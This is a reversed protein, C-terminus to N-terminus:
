EFELEDVDEKVEEKISEFQSIPRIKLFGQHEKGQDSTTTHHNKKKPGYKKNIKKKNAMERIKKKLNEKFRAKGTSVRDRYLSLFKKRKDKKELKKEKVKEIIKARKNKQWIIAAKIGQALSILLDLSMINCSLLLMLMSFFYSKNWFELSLMVGTLISFCTQIVIAKTNSFKSKYPRITILYLLLFIEILLGGVIQIFSNNQFIVITLSLGLDTGFHILDTFKAFANHKYEENLKKEWYLEVIKSKDKRLYVMIFFWCYFLLVVASIILSIYELSGKANLMLLNNVSAFVLPLQESILHNPLTYLFINRSLRILIEAPFYLHIVAPIVGILLMVVFLYLNIGEALFFLNSVGVKCFRESQKNCVNNSDIAAYEPAYLELIQQNIQGNFDIFISLYKHDINPETQANYYTYLLIKNFTQALYNFLTGGNVNAFFGGLLPLLTAVVGISQITSGIAAESTTTKSSISELGELGWGMVDIFSTSCVLLKGEQSVFTKKTDLRLRIVPDSELETSNIELTLRTMNTEQKEVLLTYKIEEHKGETHVLYVNDISNKAISSEGVGVEVTIKGVGRLVKKGELRATFQEFCNQMRPLNPNCIEVCLSGSRVMGQPCEDFCVRRLVSLAQGDRCFLACHGDSGLVEQAACEEVCHAASLLRGEALCESPSVCALGGPPSPLATPPYACSPLCRAGVTSSEGSLSSSYGWWRCSAEVSLSSVSSVYWQSASRSPPASPSDKLSLELRPALLLSPLPTSFTLLLTPPTLTFTPPWSSSSLTASSILSELVQLAATDPTELDIVIMASSDDDSRFSSIIRPTIRKYCYSTKTNSCETLCYKGTSDILTTTPCSEVCEPLDVYSIFPRIESCISVCSIDDKIMQQESCEQSSICTKTPNSDQLLLESCTEQCTLGDSFDIFGWIQCDQSIYLESISSLFLEGEKSAIIRNEISIKLKMTTQILIFPFVVDIRGDNSLSSDQISYTMEEISNGAGDYKAIKTIINAISVIDTPIFKLSIRTEDAAKSGSSNEFIPTFLRYCNSIILPDQCEYYCEISGAIERIAASSPCQDLCEVFSAFNKVKGAPCLKLCSSGSIFYGISNCETASICFEGLTDIEMILEDCSKLCSRQDTFDRYTTLSCYADTSNYHLNSEYRLSKYCVGYYHWFINPSSCLSSCSYDELMFEGNPCLIRGGVEMSGQCPVCRDGQYCLGATSCDTLCPTDINEYKYEFIPCFDPICVLATPVGSFLHYDTNCEFCNGTNIMYASKCNPPTYFSTTSSYDDIFSNYCSNYDYDIIEGDGSVIYLMKKAESYVLTGRTDGEYKSLTMKRNTSAIGVNMKVISDGGCIITDGFETRIQQICSTIRYQTKTITEALRVGSSDIGRFVLAIEPSGLAIAADGTTLGRIVIVGSPGYSREYEIDSIYSFPKLSSTTSDAEFLYMGDTSSSIFLTKRVGFIDVNIQELGFATQYYNFQLGQSNTLTFPFMKLHGTKNELNYRLSGIFRKAKGGPIDLFVGQLLIYMFSSDSSDFEMGILMLNKFEAINSATAPSIETYDTTPNNTALIQATSIQIKLIQKAANLVYMIDPNSSDLKILDVLGSYINSASLTMTSTDLATVSVRPAILYEITTGPNEVKLLFQSHYNLGKALVTDALNIQSISAGNFLLFNNASIWHISNEGGGILLHPYCYLYGFRGDADYICTRLTGDHSYAIYLNARNTIFSLATIDSYFIYSSKLTDLEKNYFFVRSLRSFASKNTYRMSFAVTGDNKNIAVNSIIEDQITFDLANQLTASISIVSTSITYVLRSLFNKSAIYFMVSDPFEVWSIVPKIDHYGAINIINSTYQSGSPKGYDLIHIASAVMRSDNEYFIIIDKGNAKESYIKVKDIPNVLPIDDLSIISSTSLNVRNTKRGIITILETESIFNAGHIVRSNVISQINTSSIPNVQSTSFRKVNGFFDVIWFNDVTASNQISHITGWNTSQPNFCGTRIHQIVLCIVTIVRRMNFNFKM